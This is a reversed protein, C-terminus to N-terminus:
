EVVLTGKMGMKRHNGVSCYFEFTGVKDPTFQIDLEGETVRESKVNLEDIVFDHPMGGVSTFKITVPQGVKANIINPKFYFSGGEIAIPSEQAVTTEATRIDDAVIESGEVSETIQTVTPSVLTTISTKSASTKGKKMFLFGVLAVVIILFVGIMMLVSSNNNNGTETQLNPQNETSQEEM